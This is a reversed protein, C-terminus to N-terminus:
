GADPRLHEAMSVGSDLDRFNMDALYQVEVYDYFVDRKHSTLGFIKVLMDGLFINASIMDKIAQGYDKIVQEIEADNGYELFLNLPVMRREVFLQQIILQDGEISLSSAVTAQLEELLDPAIRDLPIAVNAFEYTDAMRGVRDHRKVM